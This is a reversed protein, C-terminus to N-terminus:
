THGMGVDTQPLPLSVRTSQTLTPAFFLEDTFVGQWLVRIEKGREWGLCRSFTSMTREGTWRRRSMDIPYLLVHHIELAKHLGICANLAENSAM